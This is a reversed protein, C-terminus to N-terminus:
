RNAGILDGIPLLAPAARLREATARNRDMDCGFDLYFSQSNGIQSFWTVHASAQDTLYPQCASGSLRVDGQSPRLTALHTEFTRYQAPTVRFTREGRVATFNRGQFLGTGDPRVTFKYMPCTGFCPGAEYSIADSGIAIPGEPLTMCGATLLALGVFTAQKM